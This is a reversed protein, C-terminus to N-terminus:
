YLTIIVQSPLEWATDGDTNKNEKCENISKICSEGVEKPLFQILNLINAKLSTGKGADIGNVYCEEFGRYLLLFKNHMVANRLVRLAKINNSLYSSKPFCCLSRIETPLKQCQFLLSSFDLHELADNLNYEYNELLERFDKLWFRQKVNYIYNDLIISRYFEELYSIYKFLTNRIRKDYRYTSAVEAYKIEETQSWALLKEKILIHKEVGKAKLAKKAREKDNEDIILNSYFFEERETMVM